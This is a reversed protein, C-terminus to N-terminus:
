DAAEMDLLEGLRMLGRFLLNRVAAESREMERAVEARSLGVVRSLLIVERYDEPLEAFAGEIRALEELTVAAGSPSAFRRYADLMQEDAADPLERRVDRKGATNHEHRALIKRLATAYLWHRFGAEGGYRFRGPSALVERCTSQVLDSEAERARAWRGARLRVYTRLGPLHRALLEEVAERNGASAAQSLERSDRSEAM